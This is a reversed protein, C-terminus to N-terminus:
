EHVRRAGAGMAEGRWAVGRGVQGPGAWRPLTLRALACTNRGKEEEGCVQLHM